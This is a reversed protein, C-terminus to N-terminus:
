SPIIPKLEKGVYKSTVGGRSRYYAYWYPGHPCGRCKKGCRVRELQYVVSGIAKRQVVERDKREPPDPPRDLQALLTDVLAALEYLQARTLRKVSRTLTKPLM